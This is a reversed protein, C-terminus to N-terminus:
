FGHPLDVARKMPDSVQIKIAAQSRRQQLRKRLNTGLYMRVISQIAIAAYHQDLLLHYKQISGLPRMPLLAVYSSSINEVQRAAYGRWLTQLPIPITDRTSWLKWKKFFPLVADQLYGSSIRAVMRKVRRRINRYKKLSLVIADDLLRFTM